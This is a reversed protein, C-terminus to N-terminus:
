IHAPAAAHPNMPEWIWAFSCMLKIEIQHSTFIFDTIRHHSMEEWSKSDTPSNSRWEKLKGTLNQPVATEVDAISGEEEEQGDLWM